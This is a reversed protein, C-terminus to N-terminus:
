PEDHGEAELDAAIADLQRAIKFLHASESAVVLVVPRRDLVTVSGSARKRLLSAHRRLASIAGSTIALDFTDPRQTM